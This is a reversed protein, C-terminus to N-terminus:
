VDDAPPWRLLTESGAVVFGLRRALARSPANDPTTSWIPVHRRVHLVHEVLAAGTARALGLRRYRPLTAVGISDYSDAEDFIWAVSAFGQGHPIGFAAGHTMLEAYTRWGRLAWAGATLTFGILDSFSLPRVGVSAGAVMKGRTASLGARWTEVERRDIEGLRNVVPDQWDEPALLAFARRHSMLWALAPGPEGAGFAELQDKGERALLISTPTSAVDGWLGPRRYKLAHRLALLGPGEASGLWTEVYRAAAEDLPVM